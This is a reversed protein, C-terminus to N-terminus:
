ADDVRLRLDAAEDELWPQFAACSLATGRPLLPRNRAGREDPLTAKCGPHTEAGRLRATLTTRSSSATALPLLDHGMKWRMLFIGLLLHQAPLKPSVLAGNFQRMPM